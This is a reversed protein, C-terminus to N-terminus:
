GNRSKIGEIQVPGLLGSARLPTDPRLPNDPVWTLRQDVPLGSDRILRNVWLNAVTIELKNSHTKLMGPPISARWPDCWLVGLDHGNLKVSAINHVKGLFISYRNRRLDFNCDFTTRYIATGSYYKIQTESRVSWDELEGFIVTEPGGWKPDFAVEWPGAITALIERQPFNEQTVSGKAPRRFIVFGSEYPALRLSILTQQDKTKFHPLDRRRGSIPDWWEPQRGQVRFSCTATEEKAERNAIFYIDQDSDRRHIFRVGGGGEFDPVVGLHELVTATTRYSPYISKEELAQDDLRWPLEAFEGLEKVVEPSGSLASSASWSRDTTIIRTNGDTFTVTLSGILGPAATHKESEWKVMVAISNKGSVMLSTVDVRRVRRFDNDAAVRRGNVFLEFSSCATLAIEATDIRSAEEIDVSGVFYRTVSRQTEGGAEGTWIWKSTALPNGTHTRAAGADFWVNGKGVRRPSKESSSGWLKVALAQVERDCEPYGVLSPSKQPPIGIVSAGDEVLQVIKRLLVPTMTEVQPLVLLRYTMGDPFVIKGDKVSARSILTQPSCGDFNYGRRDAMKGPLFATPPPLFVNPAGEPILYLIDAVFLGQRLMQQCRSLYLHYAPVMSWWTQTRDWHVGYGGEPGMTMGPFRAPSPQAQFRHFVIRNIGACLAWDGQDKMSAPHQLWTDNPSATFSEAAIIRCGSTHGVSTAEVVSFDTSFDDLKSWFEGMPVDAVAGLQLDSCPNLDYPELSFQLGHRKGLEKLRAAQNEIVLEQATQRIDWLFRESVEANEVFYGSFTPLYPWPEYGRRKSFEAAFQESWNQSGMEWSDFHLTTLGSGSHRRNGIRRLLKEVYAEFHSDIAARSFKDTELGLGPNPAPRTTQGTLTRGLRMITWSGQPVDWLLSGDPRLKDTLDLVRLRSICQEPAVEQYHASTLLLPRVWPRTTFPGLIQSSYSGRTYLAKEDVDKIRARDVPTPFALVAVDRYFDRWQKLLDPTLTEEGFFPTRPVPRSLKGDFRSPGQILTESSVLHQMSDEPKVWPGGAGCWGPGSGLALQLGLEDAKSFARAVLDQWPPSMFEVPGPALGLGVELFIGGGIGARKMAELDAAMGERSLHGDMFYWYVWPRATDPPQIFDRLLDVSEVSSSNEGLLNISALGLAGIKMLDRRTIEHMTPKEEKM